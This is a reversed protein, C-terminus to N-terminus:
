DGLRIEASVPTASRVRAQRANQAALECIAAPEDLGQADNDIAPWRLRTARPVGADGRLHRFLPGAGRKPVGNAEGRVKRNM